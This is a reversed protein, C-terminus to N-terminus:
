WELENFSDTIHSYSYYPGQYLPTKLLTYGFMKWKDNTTFIDDIERQNRYWIAAHIYCIVVYVILVISIILITKNKKSM